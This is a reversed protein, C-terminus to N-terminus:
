GNSQSCPQNKPVNTEYGATGGLGKTRTSKKQLNRPNEIYTIMDGTILSLQVEEEGIRVRKIEKEQKSCWSPGPPWHQMSSTLRSMRVKNM